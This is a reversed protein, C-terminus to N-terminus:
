KVLQEELIRGQVLEHHVLDGVKEALSQELLRGLRLNLLNQGNQPGIKRANCYIRVSRAGKLGEELFLADLPIFLRCSSAIQQILSQFPTSNKFHGTINSRIVNQLLTQSQHILSLM